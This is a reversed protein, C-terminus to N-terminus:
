KSNFYKEIVRCVKTIDKEKIDAYLPLRLLRYCYEETLPLDGEKYGFKKGMPSIHLPYYHPCAQIDNEKLYSVLEDREEKTNLILYYMHANHECYSPIYPRTLLGKKEFSLFFDNYRNWARMRKEMIEDFRMLQGYLLGALIDSPLYSSGLSCWNYKDIIGRTFQTRNTGKERIIEAALFADEDNTVFAGGEGMIYNKTEHFSFCGFKALTGAPRGKYYSGVSQAADEIVIINHTKAIKNVLDYDVPVGAYDVVVIAKTRETIKGEIENVDVNMTRPDIDVFVPVAGRLVFANISSVFTYSPVIVEDGEKIDCLLAAMELASTCSTTLLFDSKLKENFWETVLKTYKGDGSLRNDLLSDSIYKKEVSSISVKNFPIMM